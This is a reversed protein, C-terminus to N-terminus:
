VNFKYYMGCVVGVGVGVVVSCSVVEFSVGFCCGLRTIVRM